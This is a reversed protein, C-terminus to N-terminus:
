RVTAQAWYGTRKLEEVSVDGLAANELIKSAVLAPTGTEFKSVDACVEDLVARLRATVESPFMGKSELAPKHLAYSALNFRIGGDPRFSEVLGAPGDFTM